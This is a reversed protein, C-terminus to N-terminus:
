QAVGARALAADVDAIAFGADLLYVVLQDISDATASNAVSNARDDNQPMTVRNISEWAERQERFALALNIDVAKRQGTIKAVLAQAIRIGAAVSLGAIGLEITVDARMSEFNGLNVTRGYGISKVVM